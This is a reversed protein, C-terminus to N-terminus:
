GGSVAPILALEDGDSLLQDNAAYFLNVAAAARPILPAIAPLRRAAAEIAMAVTAPAPLELDIQDVGAKERLMAFMKLRIRM